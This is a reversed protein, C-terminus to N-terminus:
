CSNSGSGMGLLWRHGWETLTQDALHLQTLERRAGDLGIDRGDRFQGLEIPTRGVLKLEFLHSRIQMVQQGLLIQRQQADLGCSAPPEAAGMPSANAWTMDFYDRLMLLVPIGSGRILVAGGNAPPTLPMLAVTEGDRVSFSLDQVARLGGFRKSLKRIVLAEAM